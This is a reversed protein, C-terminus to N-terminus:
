VTFSRSKNKTKIKTNKNNVQRNPYSKISGSFKIGAFAKTVGVCIWGSHYKKNAYAIRRAIGLLSPPTNAKPRETKTSNTYLSFVFFKKIEPNLLPPNDRSINQVITLIKKRRVQNPEQGASAGNM